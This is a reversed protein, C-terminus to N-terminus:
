TSKFEVTNGEMLIGPVLGDAVTYETALFIMEIRIFLVFEPVTFSTAFLTAETPKKLEHRFAICFLHRILLEM